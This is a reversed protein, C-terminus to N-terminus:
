EKETKREANSTEVLIKSTTNLADALKVGDTISPQRTGDEYRNITQQSVGVLKALQTQSLNARKRYFRVNEPFAM